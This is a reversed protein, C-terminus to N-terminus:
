TKESYVLWEQHVDVSVDPDRDQIQENLIFRSLAASQHVFNLRGFDDLGIFLCRGFCYGPSTFEFFQGVRLESMKM